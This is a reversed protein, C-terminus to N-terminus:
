GLGRISFVELALKQSLFYKQDIKLSGLFTSLNSIVGAAPYIM